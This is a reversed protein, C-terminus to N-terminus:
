KGAEFYKLALSSNDMSVEATMLSKDEKFSIDTGM